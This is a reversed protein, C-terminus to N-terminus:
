LRSNSGSTLTEYLGILKPLHVDWSLRRQAVARCRNRLDDGQKQCERVFGSLQVSIEGLSQQRGADLVMGVRESIALASYDGVGDSIIVPVGAALYEGFKVPSSVRNVLSAERLLLGVDAAALYRPVESHRVRLVTTRKTSLGLSAALNRMARDETTLALFHAEPVYKKIERFVDLCLTPLQWPSLGGCYTVVFRNEVGLQARMSARAEKVRGFAEVDPCCPIVIQRSGPVGYNHQVYEKMANSVCIVIDAERAATCELEFLRAIEERVEETDTQATYGYEAHGIGRYDCIVLVDRFRRKLQLAIVTMVENRCHLILRKRSRLEKMLIIQLLSAAASLAGRGRLCPFRHLRLGCDSRQQLIADWRRRASPRFIEGFTAFVGVSCPLGQRVLWETPRVVQSVFVPNFGERYVFHRVSFRNRLPQDEAKMGACREM